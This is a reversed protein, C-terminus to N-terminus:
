RVKQYIKNKVVERYRPDRKVLLDVVLAVQREAIQEATYLEATMPFAGPNLAPSGALSWSYDDFDLYGGPKLLRDLLFFALADLAWVHAGDLFVYDYLPAPHQQVVRMLSWNYSDLLKRSNGHGVVNRYGAQHLAAVVPAVRDAFDFLHLEGAGNLWRAIARSTHGEYCGVEAIIRAATTTLFALTGENARVVALQKPHWPDDRLRASQAPEALIPRPEDPQGTPRRRAGEEGRRGGALRRPRRRPGRRSASGVPVRSSEDAGPVDDHPLFPRVADRLRTDVVLPRAAGYVSLSTGEASNAAWEQDLAGEARLRAWRRLHWSFSEPRGEM